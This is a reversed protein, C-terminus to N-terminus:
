GGLAVLPGHMGAAEGGGEGSTEVAAKPPRDSQDGGRVAARLRWGCVAAGVPAGAAHHAGDREHLTRWVRRDSQLAWTRLSDDLSM